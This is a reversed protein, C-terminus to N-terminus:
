RRLGGLRHRHSAEPALTREAVWCCSKIVGKESSSTLFAMRPNFLSPVRPSSSMGTKKQVAHQALTPDLTMAVISSNQAPCHLM